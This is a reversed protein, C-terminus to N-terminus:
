PRSSEWWFSREQFRNTILCILLSSPVCLTTANMTVTWSTSFFTFLFTPVTITSFRIIWYLFSSILQLFAIVLWALFGLWSSSGHTAVVEHARDLASPIAPTSAKLAAPLTTSASSAASALASAMAVTHPLSFLILDVAHRTASLPWTVHQSLSAAGQVSPPWDAVPPHLASSSPVRPQCPLFFHRPAPLSTSFPFLFTPLLPSSWFCQGDLLPRHPLGKRRQLGQRNALRNQRSAGGRMLLSPPCNHGELM